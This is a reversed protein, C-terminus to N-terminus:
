VWRQNSSSTESVWVRCSRRRSRSRGRGGGRRDGKGERQDQDGDGGEGWDTQGRDLQPLSLLFRTGDHNMIRLSGPQERGDHKSQTNQDQDLAVTVTANM